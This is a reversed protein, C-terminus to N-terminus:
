KFGALKHMQISLLWPATPFDKNLRGLLTVTEAFNFTGGRECPSLFYHPATIRRRIDHCFEAVDGDVVVRVEHAATVMEDDDYLAAFLAKPSVAVYDIATRWADPLRQIGNTELGIWFGREKLLPLLESVGEQILPEGGTIIVARPPLAAAREVIDAANLNEFVDQRTDCWPCALNCGSYRIFTVPKGTNAGEGQLSNFIEIIRHDNSM